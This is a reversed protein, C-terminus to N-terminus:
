VDRNRWFDGSAERYSTIVTLRLMVTEAPFDLLVENVRKLAPKLVQLTEAEPGQHVSFFVHKM